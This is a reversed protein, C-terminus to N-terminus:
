ASEVLVYGVEKINKIYNFNYKNKLRYVLNKISNETIDLEFLEENILDFSAVKGNVRIFLMLFKYELKTINHEKENEYLINKVFDLRHVKSFKHELVGSNFLNTAFESLYNKIESYTLPKFIYGSLGLPMCKQLKERDDHNSVITIPIKANFSRVEKIFEYGNMLPMEYDTFIVQITNEKLIDLAELGNNAVKVELFFYEFTEKLEKQVTPDDEVLLLTLSKLYNLM